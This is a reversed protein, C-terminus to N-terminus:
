SRTADAAFTLASSTIREREAVVDEDAFGASADTLGEDSLALIAVAEAPAPSVLPRPM